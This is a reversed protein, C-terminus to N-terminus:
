SFIETLFYYEGERRIKGTKELERMRISIKTILSKKHHTDLDLNYQKILWGVVNSPKRSRSKLSELIIRTLYNPDDFDLEEESIM